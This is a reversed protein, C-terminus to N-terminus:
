IFCHDFPRKLIHQQNPRKLPSTINMMFYLSTEKPWQLMIEVQNSAMTFKAYHICIRNKKFFIPFHYSFIFAPGLTSIQPLTQYQDFLASKRSFLASKSFITYVLGKELHKADFYLKAYNKCFPVANLKKICFSSFKCQM